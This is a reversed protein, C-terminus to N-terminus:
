SERREPLGHGGNTARILRFAIWMPQDTAEAVRAGQEYEDVLQAFRTM